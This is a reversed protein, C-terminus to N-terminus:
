QNDLFNVPQRYVKWIKHLIKMNIQFNGSKTSVKWFTPFIKLNDPCNRKKLFNKWQTPHKQIMQFNDRGEPLNLSNLSLPYPILSKLLTLTTYFYLFIFCVMFQSYITFLCFVKFHKSDLVIICLFSFLECWTSRM